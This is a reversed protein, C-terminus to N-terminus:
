FARIPRVRQTGGKGVNREQGFSDGVLERALAIGPNYNTQTSTWRAGPEEFGYAGTTFLPNPPGTCPGTGTPPTDPDAAYQCMANLENASPLFWDTYGGGTYSRAAGAAYLNRAVGAADMRAIIADTNASGMGVASAATASASQESASGPYLDNKECDQDADTSGSAYCKPDTTTWVIPAEENDGWDNPAMEYTKGGSILFVLGGGPGIDGLAYSGSGGGGGGSDGGGSSGTPAAPTRAWTISRTCVWGGNGDNAWQEWSPHWTPGSIPDDPNAWSARWESLSEPPDDCTATQSAREYSQVWVSDAMAVRAGALMAAAVVLASLTALFKKARSSDVVSVRSEWQM